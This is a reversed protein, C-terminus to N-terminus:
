SPSVFGLPRLKSNLVEEYHEGYDVFNVVATQEGVSVIRALYMQCVNTPITFMVLDVRSSYTSVTFNM